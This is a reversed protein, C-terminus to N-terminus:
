HATNEPRASPLTDIGTNHARTDPGVATLLDIHETVVETLSPGAAQVAEAIRAAEIAQGGAAEILQLAIVAQRKDDYTLSTQRGTEPDRWLVAYSTTGNARRRTRISAM